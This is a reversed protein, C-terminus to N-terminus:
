ELELELGPSKPDDKSRRLRQGKSLVGVSVLTDAIAVWSGYSAASSHPHSVGPRVFNKLFAVKPVIKQKMFVLIQAFLIKLHYHKLGSKILTYEEM